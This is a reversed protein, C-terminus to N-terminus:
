QVGALAASGWSGYPDVRRRAAADRGMQELQAWSLAVREGDARRAPSGDPHYLVVGHEKADTLWVGNRRLRAAYDSAVDQPSRGPFRPDAVPALPLADKGLVRKAEVAGAEVFDANLNESKPVRYTDKYDYKFDLLDQVAQRASARYDGALKSDGFVGPAGTQGTNNQLYVTALRTALTRYDTKTQDVQSGSLTRYFPALNKDVEQTIKKLTDAPDPDNKLLNGEKVKVSEVLAKAAQPQIGAGIVRFLPGADPAVQRYIDPWRDGWIQAMGAVRAAVTAAGGAPDPNMMEAHMRDIESKPLIRIDEPPVGLRAQTSTMLDAFASAAGQRTALPAKPNDYVAAFQKFANAGTDTRSIAFLASDKKKDAENRDIAKDLAVARKSQELYGEGPQPQYRQRLASIENESMGAVARMDSGLQLNSQYDDYGRVGEEPGLGAVFQERTLPTKVTGTDFAEATTDQVKQKFLSRNLSEDVHYAEYVRNVRGFYANQATPNDPFRDLGRLVVDGKSPLPNSFEAALQIHGADNKLADGKLFELGYRGANQHMWDLFPGDPIDGAEGREHRSQGPPAALGGQGHTYKRYLEAQEDTTRKLSEFRAKGGTAAEYDKAAQTLREAFEPRVGEVRAAGSRSELFDQTEPRLVRRMDEDAATTGIQKSRGAHLAGEIDLVSKADIQNEYGKAFEAAKSAGGAPDDLILKTTELIIKGNTKAVEAEIQQPEYGQLEFYNRTEALAHHRQNDFSQLDGKKYALISQDTYGLTNDKAVTKTYVREEREAHQTAYGYYRELNRSLNQALMSSVAPNSASGVANDYISKLNAIHAERAQMAAHGSLQSFKADADSFANVAKTSRDSADVANLKNQQEQAYDIGAVGARELGQGFTEAAQAGFGGFMGANTPINEGSTSPAGTPEVTPFQIDLIRQNSV